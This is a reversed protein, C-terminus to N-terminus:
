PQRLSGLRVSLSVSAFGAIEQPADPRVEKYVMLGAATMVGVRASRPHDRYEFAIQKVQNPATEWIPLRAVIRWEDDPLSWGVVAWLSQKSWIGGDRYRYDAGLMIGRGRVIATEGLKYGGQRKQSSSGFTTAEFTVTNSVARELRLGVELGPGEVMSGAGGITAIAQARVPVPVALLAACVAAIGIAHWGRHWGSPSVIRSKAWKPASNSLPGSPVESHWASLIPRNKNARGAPSSGAVGPKSPLHAVTM